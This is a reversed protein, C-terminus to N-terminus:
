EVEMQLTNSVKDFQLTRVNLGVGELQKRLRILWLDCRPSGLQRYIEGGVLPVEKLEGRNSTVLIHAITTHPKGLALRSGSIALDGTTPDLYLANILSM